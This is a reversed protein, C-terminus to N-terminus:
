PKDEYLARQRMVYPLNRDADFYHKRKIWVLGEAKTIVAVDVPGGVSESHTTIREKLSQLVILTEALHVMEQIPLSAIVRKMPHYHTSLMKDLWQESFADASAALTQDFDAPLEVIDQQLLTAEVLGKANSLYARRVESFTDLGVGTTFTDISSTMAFQFIGSPTDHGIECSNSNDIHYIFDNKVFGFVEYKIVCPFYQGTGFGSFVIGTQPLVVDFKKFLYKCGLEALAPIAILDSLGSSRLYDAFEPYNQLQEEVETTVADLAADSIGPHMPLQDLEDTISQAFAAWAAQREQTNKAADDIAAVTQRAQKILDLVIRLVRDFLKRDLDAQPFFFDATKVFNFFATAYDQLAPHAQSGLKDRFNKIIIEWPVGDLMASGHIMVGVPEQRSLQFIKNGGKSYRENGNGSATTVASDAAIVVAYKNMVAVECTMAAEEVSLKFL